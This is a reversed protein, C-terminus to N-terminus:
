AGSRQADRMFDSFIRDYNHLGDNTLIDRSIILEPRKAIQAANYVMVLYKVVEAIDDDEFHKPFAAWMLDPSIALAILGLNDAKGITVVPSDTLILRYPLGSVNIVSWRSSVFSDIVETDKIVRLLTHRVQNKGYNCDRFVDLDDAETDSKMDKLLNQMLGDIMSDLDALRKPHRQLLSNVYIAWTKKEDDSLSAVSSLTLMKVLVKAAADDVKALENEIFDPEIDELLTLNLTYLNDKFCIQSPHKDQPDVSGTVNKRYVLFMGNDGKWRNLHFKPVYHHKKKVQRTFVCGGSM